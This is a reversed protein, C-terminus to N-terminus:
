HSDDSEAEDTSAGPEDPGPLFGQLLSQLTTWDSFSAAWGDGIVQIRGQWGESSGGDDPGNAWLRLLFFTSQPHQKM